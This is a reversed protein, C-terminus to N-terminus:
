QKHDLLFMVQVMFVAEKESSCPESFSATRFMKRAIRSICSATGKSGM